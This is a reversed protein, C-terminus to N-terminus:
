EKRRKAAAWPDFPANEVLNKETMVVGEKIDWAFRWTFGYDDTWNFIAKGSM